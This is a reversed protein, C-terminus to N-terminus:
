QNRRTDLDCTSLFEMLGFIKKNLAVERPNIGYLEDNNIAISTTMETVEQKSEEKKVVTEQNANVKNFADFEKQYHSDRGGM